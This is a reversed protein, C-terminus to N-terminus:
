LRCGYERAIAATADTSGDDVVIIEFNPYQLQSVGELCDRITRSGNYTCIVVSVRPWAQDTALPVNAFADRVARLAPKPRRKRSTLGFDWDDVDAGARYWEDTWAYVFAGACGAAFATRVQWDLVRAQVPEGNRRSDLGIESMLLPREGA